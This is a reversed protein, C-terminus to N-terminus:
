DGDTQADLRARGRRKIDEPDWPAINGDAIDADAEALKQRIRDDLKSRLDTIDSLRVVFVPESSADDELQTPGAPQQRLATRIEPTMKPNM